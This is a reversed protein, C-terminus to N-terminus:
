DVGVVTSRREYQQVDRWRGDRMRGVREQTGMLRFGARQHLAISATNEPFIGAELTWFGARESGEILEALLARGVGRGAHAPDVYISVSGVGSYCERYSVQSLAAWGIVQATDDRAM